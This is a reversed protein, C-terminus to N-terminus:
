LVVAVYWMYMYVEYEYIYIEPLVIDLKFFSAKSFHGNPLWCPSFLDPCSYDSLRFGPLSM